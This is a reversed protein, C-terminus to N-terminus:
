LNQVSFRTMYTKNFESRKSIVIFSPLGRVVRYNNKLLVDKLTIGLPVIILTDPHEYSEYYIAVNNLTYLGLVDWDPREGLVISLHDHFTDKEDFKEVFDTTNFEPYLFLVPWVLSKAVEDYFVSTQNSCQPIDVKLDDFTLNELQNEDFNSFRIHREKLCEILNKRSAEAKTRKIHEQRKQRENEKIKKSIDEITSNLDTLCNHLDSSSEVIWKVAEKPCNLKILCDIGLFFNAASRNNYLEAMLKADNCSLKIGETYATIAKNYDKSKFHVNGDRKFEAAREESTDEEDYKMAQLAEIAESYGDESPLSSMFAPHSDIEKCWQDFDFPAGRNKNWEAKTAEFDWDEMDGSLLADM